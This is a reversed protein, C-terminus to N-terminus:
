LLVITNPIKVPVKSNGQTNLIHIMILDNNFILLCRNLPFVTFNTNTNFLHSKFTYYSKLYHVKMKTRNFGTM